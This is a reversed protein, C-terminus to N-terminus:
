CFSQVRKKELLIALKIVQDADGHSHSLFIDIEDDPFLNQQIKDGDLSNGDVLLYRKLDNLVEKKQSKYAEIEYDSIYKPPNFLQFDTVEISLFM